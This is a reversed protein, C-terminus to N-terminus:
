KLVKLQKVQEKLFSLTRNYAPNEKKTTLLALYTVTQSITLLQELQKKKM